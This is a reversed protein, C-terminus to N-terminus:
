PLRILSQGQLIRHDAEELFDNGFLVTEYDQLNWVGKEVNFAFEAVENM